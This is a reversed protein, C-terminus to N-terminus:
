QAIELATGMQDALFGNIRHGQSPPLCLSYHPVSPSRKTQDRCVDGELAAQSGRRYMGHVSLGRSRVICESCVGWESCHSVNRKEKIAMLNPCNRDLCIRLENLYLSLHTKSAYM